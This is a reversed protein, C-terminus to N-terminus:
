KGFYDTLATLLTEAEEDTLTLGKGPKTEGDITRWVRLDLKAPNGNWSVLCIRKASSGTSSLEALTEEVKHTIM